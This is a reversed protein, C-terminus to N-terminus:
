QPASQYRSTPKQATITTYAYGGNLMHKLTLSPMQPLLQQTEFTV